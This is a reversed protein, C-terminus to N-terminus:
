RRDLEESISAALRQRREEVRPKIDAGIRKWIDASDIASSRGRDETREAARLEQDALNLEQVASRWDRYRERVVPSGHVDLLAQVRAQEEITPLEPKPDGAMQFFQRTFTVWLDVRGVLDMVEEYTRVIREQRRQEYSMRWEHEHRRETQEAEHEYRREDRRRGLWNSVLGSVLGGLAALGGGTLLAMITNM